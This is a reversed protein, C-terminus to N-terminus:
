EAGGTTALAPAPVPAPEGAPAPAPARWPARRELFPREVFRFSLAGLAAAAAFTLPFTVLLALATSDLAGTLHRLEYIVLVHSLYIGYSRVGLWHLAPHDLLRWARGTAWQLVLPAALLSGCAIASVLLQGRNGLDAYVHVVYGGVALALVAWALARGWARGQLRPRVLPEITALAIGPAFAWASGAVIEGTAPGLQGLSMSAASIAALGALIVGARGWPTARGRLLRALPLLLLPVLAYFVVEVDLTWAQVMRDTFPGQDYVHSFTAFRLLEGATAGGAVVITVLLWLYYGPLIRLVRNRGYRWGDPRRGDGRVVARVFPGSILYGSLVFFFWVSIWMSVVWPGLESLEDRFAPSVGPAGTIEASSVAVHWFVIVLCALGRLPDGAIFRASPTRVTQPEATL